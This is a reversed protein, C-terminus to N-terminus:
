APWLGAPAQPRRVGDHPRGCLLRLVPGDSGLPGYDLRSAFGAQQPSPACHSTWLGESPLPCKRTFIYELGSAGTIRCCVALFCDTKWVSSWADHDMSTRLISMGQTGLCHLPRQHGGKVRASHSMSAFLCGM